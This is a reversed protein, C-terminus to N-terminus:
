LSHSCIVWASSKVKEKEKSERKEQRIETQNQGGGEMEREKLNKKNQPGEEKKM